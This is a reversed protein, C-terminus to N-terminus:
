KSCHFPFHLKKYHKIIRDHQNIPAIIIIHKNGQTSHLCHSGLSSDLFLQFRKVLFFIYQWLSM